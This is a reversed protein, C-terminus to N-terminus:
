RSLDTEPHMKFLRGTIYKQVFKTRGIFWGIELKDAGSSGCYTLCKRICKFFSGTVFNQVFKTTGM